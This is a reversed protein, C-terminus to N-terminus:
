WVDSTASRTRGRSVTSRGGGVPPKQRRMTGTTGSPRPSRRGSPPRQPCSRWRGSPSTTRSYSWVRAARPPRPGSPSGSVSAAAALGRRGIAASLGAPLPRKLWCTRSSGAANSGCMGERKAVRRSTSSRTQRKGGRPLAISIPWTVSRRGVTAPIHRPGPFGSGFPPWRWRVAPVSSVASRVRGFICKADCTGPAGRPIFSQGPCVRQWGISDPSWTLECDVTRDSGANYMMVLGLYGSGYPFAPMCYTQRRRGEAFTSRLALTPPEWHIFDRSEARAVLREGLVFRTILVYKGLRQDWFANNHTDGTRATLGTAKHPPGWRIGDSSFRVHVEGLGVDYVMKYRREAPCDPNPDRFVGVNPTDRAVANNRSSGDFVVQGVAPKEWGVGDRSTAYLLLWGVGHVTHPPVLRDIAARDALVCKYWLKLLRADSEDVINPYLNNLSNEWPQDARFLPNRPHKVVRGLVLEAGAVRDTVRPDLLLHHHADQFSPAAAAAAQGAGGLLLLCLGWCRRRRSTAALGHCARM